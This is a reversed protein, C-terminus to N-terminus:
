RGQGNRRGGRAHKVWHHTAQEARQNEVLDSRKSVCRGRWIGAACAGCWLGECGEGEASAIMNNINSKSNISLMCNRCRNNVIINDRIINDNFKGCRM